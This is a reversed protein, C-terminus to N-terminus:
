MLYNKVKEKHAKKITNIIEDLNDFWPKQFDLGKIGRKGINRAIPFAHSPTLWDFKPFQMAYRVWDEIVILPPQKGPSRGTMVWKASDKMYVNLTFDTDSEKTEVRFSNYLHTHEKSAERLISQMEVITKVGFDNMLGLIDLSDNM